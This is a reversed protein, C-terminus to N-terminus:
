SSMPIKFLVESSDDPLIKEFIVSVLKIDLETLSNNLNNVIRESLSRSIHRAVTIHPVYPIDHRRAKSFVPLVYLNDHLNKIVEDVDSIIAQINQYTFDSKYKSVHLEFENVDKFINLIHNKIVPIDTGHIKQPFVLTIHAPVKQYLNDYLSRIETIQQNQIELMISIEM